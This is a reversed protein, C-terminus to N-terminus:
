LIVLQLKDRWNGSNPAVSCRPFAEHFPIKLQIMELFTTNLQKQNLTRENDSQQYVSTIM